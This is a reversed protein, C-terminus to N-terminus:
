GTRRCLARGTSARHEGPAVGGLVIVDYDSTQM